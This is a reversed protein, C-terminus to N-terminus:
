ALEELLATLDATDFGETFSSCIADREVEKLKKTWFTRTKCPRSQLGMGASVSSASREVPVGFAQRLVAATLLGAATLLCHASRRRNRGVGQIGTFQLRYLPALRMVHSGGM